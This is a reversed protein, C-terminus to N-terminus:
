GGEGLVFLIGNETFDNYMNFNWHVFMNYYEGASNFPTTSAYDFMPVVGLADEDYLVGMVYPLDVETEAKKMNGTATDLISPTIKIATRDNQNQWYNVGEFSGIDLYKPNFISSFVEAQATKFLPNYMIMKQRSKPTHRQIKEYGTINAHYNVSMDKLFDSYIPIQAAAFKMFETLYSTMLQARTYTTGNTTNYEAVLDVEYLGMSSIGAIYNLLTARTKAENELETENAFDVMVADWFRMLEAESRFAPNLQHRFRTIHRQLALIGYFNLQIVGPKNIKYMDISNGDDLQNLNLDTNWNQSAEAGKRLPTLKRTQYGYREPTVYVSRLSSTYPRVAFITRNAMTSIASLTNEVNTRLLTEGVAVFSSTDTAILDKRGTAQEVLDNMLTYADNVVIPTAAM